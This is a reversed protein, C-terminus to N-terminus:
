KKPKITLIARWYMDGYSPIIPAFLDHAGNGSGGLGQNIHVLFQDGNELYGDIVVAHGWGYQNGFWFAVPRQNDIETKVIQIVKNKGKVFSNEEFQYIDVSCDFHIELIDKFGSFDNGKLLHPGRGFDKRMAVATYYSYMAVQNVSKISTNDEIKNVFSNFGFKYSELDENIAYGETCQYSEKGKPLLKYYYLIQAVATAQCGVRVKTPTYKAYIGAQDWETKLLYPVKEDIYKMDIGNLFHEYATQISEATEAAKLSDIANLSISLTFLALFIKQITAKKM